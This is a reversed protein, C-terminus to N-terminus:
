KKGKDKGDKSNKCNPNTCEYTNNANKDMEQDCIICRM